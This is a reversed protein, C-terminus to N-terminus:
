LAFLRHRNIAAISSTFSHTRSAASDFGFYRGLKAIRLGVSGTNARGAIDISRIAASMATM